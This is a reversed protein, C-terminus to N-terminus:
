TLTSSGEAQKRQLISDSRKLQDQLDQTVLKAGISQWNYLTREPVTNQFWILAQQASEDMMDQEFKRSYPKLGVVYPFYLVNFYRWEDSFGVASTSAPKLREICERLLMKLAKAREILSDDAGQAALRQDILPLYTLPSVALKDLNQFHSLAQRTYRIFEEPPLAVFDVSTNVRLVAESVSRLVERQTNMDSQRPFTLRDLGAQLRDFLTALVVASAIVPLVLLITTSEGANTLRAIVFVQVGFVLTVIATLAFSRLLDRWLLTGEEYADVRALAYGLLMLDGSVALFILTHSILTVPLLLTGLALLFFITSIVVTIMPKPSIQRSQWARVLSFLLFGVPVVSVAGIQDQSFTLMVTFAFLTLALGYRFLRNVHQVTVDPSLAYIAAMWFLAPFVLPLLRFPTRVVIVSEIILYALGFAYAILGLGAYRLGRKKSSRTTLYLGFWLTVSFVLVQAFSM